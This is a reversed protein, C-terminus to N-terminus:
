PVTTLTVYQNLDDSSQQALRFRGQAFELALGSNRNVLRYTHSDALSTTGSAAVAQLYWQDSGGPTGNGNNGAPDFNDREPGTTAQAGMARQNAPTVGDVQLFSGDVASQLKYFGSDYGKSYTDAIPVLKWTAHPANKGQPGVTQHGIKVTYASAVDVTRGEADVPKRQKTYSSQNTHAGMMVTTVAGSLDSVTQYSRGSVNQNTLSGYDLSTLYGGTSGSPSSGVVTWSNPDGLDATDYVYGDYGVIRYTQSYADYTIASENNPRPQYLRHTASDIFLISGTMAMQVHKEGTKPDTQTIQIGGSVVKKGDVYQDKVPLVDVALGTAPDTYDVQAVASGNATTITHALTNATYLNGSVNGFTFLHDSAVKFARFDVPSGDAGKGGFAVVDSKPDYSVNLGIPDGVNGDIGGIGPQSWSGDYYKQWTGSAMGGSIPARAMETWSAVTASAPKQYIKVNYSLYFYGTSYDVFLRPGSNGFPYTQGPSAASDILGNDDWASTLAPGQYQWSEGKDDSTALLIRNNHHGTHIRQAITAGVGTTQWPDFQFEDNIVAHWTGTAPDIWVGLIDCHDDEQPSLLPFTSRKDLQYCLSGPTGYFADATTEQTTTGYGADVAGLDTNTFTKAWGQSPDEAYGTYGTTWHFEGAKDVFASGAIDSRLGGNLHTTSAAGYAPPTLGTDAHSVAPGSVMAVTAALM